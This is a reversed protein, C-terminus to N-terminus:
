SCSPFFNSTQITQLIPKVDLADIYCLLFSYNRPLGSSQPISHIELLLSDRGCHGEQLAPSTHLVIWHYVVRSCRSITRHTSHYHTECSTQLCFYCCYSLLKELFIHHHWPWIVCQTLRPDSGMEAVWWSVWPLQKVGGALLHPVDLWHELWRVLALWRILAGIM